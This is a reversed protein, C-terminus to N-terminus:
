EKIKDIDSRKFKIFDEIKQQKDRKVRQLNVDKLTSTNKIKKTIKVERNIVSGKLDFVNQIAQSSNCRITNAMLLLNVTEIDEMEVKFVGYIRAILSNPNNKLHEFYKPLAELFVKLETSYM